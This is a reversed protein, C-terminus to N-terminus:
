PSFGRTIREGLQELKTVSSTALESKWIQVGGTGDVDYAAAISRGDPSFVASYISGGEAGRLVTLRQGTIVSFVAAGNDGCAVVIKSGDPSFSATMPAPCANITRVPRDNKASWVTVSGDATTTAFESGSRNFEVDSVGPGRKRLMRLKAKAVNWLEVGGGSDGAVVERGDPTFVVASLPFLGHYKTYHPPLSEPKGGGQVNYLQAKGSSTAAVVRSADRSLDAYEADKLRMPTALTVENYGSGVPEWLDVTGDSDATVLYGAHNFRASFVASDANIVTPQGNSSLPKGSATFVYIRGFGDRAIIRGGDPSYQVAYVPNPLGPNGATRSTVLTAKLEEPQSNWVRITGDDSATVVERGNASFSAARIAGADGQLTTTQLGTTADWPVWGSSYWWLPRRPNSAVSNASDEGADLTM